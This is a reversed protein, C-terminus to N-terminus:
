KLLKLGNKGEEYQPGRFSPALLLKGRKGGRQSARDTAEFNLGSNDSWDITSNVSYLETSENTQARVPLRM